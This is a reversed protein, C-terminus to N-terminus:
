TEGAERADRFMQWFFIWPDLFFEGEQETVKFIFHTHEHAGVATGATTAYARGRALPRNQEVLLEVVHHAQLAWRAGDPWRRVGRWRNNGFGAALSNFYYHDDFDVPAYLTTGAPMNVDLGCHAVAGMFPGMWCDEGNYCEGIDLSLRPTEYWLAMPEPCVSRGSEQVAFRAARRPQCVQWHLWDKEGMFGGRGSFAVAAADFWINVGDIEWPEYFSEQAGVVRRLEYDAGNIKVGASFGYASIDGDRAHGTAAYNEEIIEADTEELTMDWDTGDAFRFRLTDGHNMEVPTLTDKVRREIIM